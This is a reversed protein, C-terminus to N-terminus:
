KQCQEQAEKLLKLFNELKKIDANPNKKYASKISEEYKNIKTKLYAKFAPNDSGPLFKGLILDKESYPESVGIKCKLTFYFKNHEEAADEAIIEYGNKLVYARVSDINHQPQLILYPTNKANPPADELIQTILIGGMGTIVIVDPTENEKIVSLGSGCRVDIIDEVGNECVNKYAKECSVPSLDSAVAKKIIGKLALYVPLSGHDTGVDALLSCHPVMDASMKLRKSLKM